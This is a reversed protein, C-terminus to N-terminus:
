SLYIFENGLLFLTRFVFDWGSIKSRYLSRPRVHDRYRRNMLFAAVLQSINGIHYDAKQNIFEM